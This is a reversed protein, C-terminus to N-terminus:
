TTGCTGLKKLEIERKGSHGLRARSPQARAREQRRQAHSSAAGVRWLTPVSPHRTGTTASSMSEVHVHVVAARRRHDAAGAVRNCHSASLGDVHINVQKWKLYMIRLHGSAVRVRIAGSRIGHVDTQSQQWRGFEGVDIITGQRFSHSVHARLHV